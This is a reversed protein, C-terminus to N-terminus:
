GHRDALTKLRSIVLWCSPHQSGQLLQCPVRSRRAFGSFTVGSPKKSRIEAEVANLRRIPRLSSRSAQM